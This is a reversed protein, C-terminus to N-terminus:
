LLPIHCSALLLFCPAVPLSCHVVLLSCRAVLLSCLVLFLSCPVLFLSCPVSRTHCDLTQAGADIGCGVNLTFHQFYLGGAGWGMKPEHVSSIQGGAWSDTFGDTSAEVDADRYLDKWM